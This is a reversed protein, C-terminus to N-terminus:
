AHTVPEAESGDAITRAQVGPLAAIFRSLLVVTMLWGLLGQIVSVAKAARLPTFDGYGITLQTIASFYFTSWFSRFSDQSFHLQLYILGFWIMLECFNWLLLVLSRTVDIVQLRRDKAQSGLHSFLGLNAAVQTIDLIRISACFMVPWAIFWPNNPYRWYSVLALVGAFVLWRILYADTDEPLVAKSGPSRKELWLFVREVSWAIQSATKLRESAADRRQVYDAPLQTKLGLM